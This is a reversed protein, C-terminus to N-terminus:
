TSKRFHWLQAKGHKRHSVLELPPWNTTISETEEIFLSAGAALLSSSALTQLLEEAYLMGERGQGYPPDAYIIDFSRGQRELVPLMSFIDGPILEIRVGLKEANALICKKAVGEREVFTASAAGRSLAEFGMAGTGAFLDLFRAGEIENQCINFLAERLLSSTPRVGKKPPTALVRGRFQGGIIRM